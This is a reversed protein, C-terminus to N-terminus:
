MKLLVTMTRDVSFELMDSMDEQTFMERMESTLLNSAARGMLKLNKSLKELLDVILTKLQGQDGKFVQKTLQYYTAVSWLELKITMTFITLIKNPIKSGEFEKQLLDLNAQILRFYQHAPPCSCTKPNKAHDLLSSLFSAVKFSYNQFSLQKYSALYLDVEESKNPKAIGSLIKKRLSAKALNEDVRLDLETLAIPNTETFTFKADSTKNFINESEEEPYRTRFDKHDLPKLKKMSHNAFLADLKLASSPGVISIDQAMRQRPSAYRPAEGSVIKKLRLNNKISVFDVSKLPRKQSKLKDFSITKSISVKADEGEVTRSETVGQLKGIPILDPNPNEFVDNFNLRKGDFPEYALKRDEKNKKNSSEIQEKIKKTSEIFRKDDEFMEQLDDIKLQSKKRKLGSDDIVVKKLSDLLYGATRIIPPQKKTSDELNPNFRNVQTQSGTEYLNVEKHELNSRGLKTKSSSEIKSRKSASLSLSKPNAESNARDALTKVMVADIANSSDVAAGQDTNSRNSSNFSKNKTSKYADSDKGSKMNRTYFSSTYHAHELISFPNGPSKRDFIEKPATPTHSENATVAKRINSRSYTASTEKFVKSTDQTKKAPVAETAKKSKSPLLNSTATFKPTSKNPIAKMRAAETLISSRYKIAGSSGDVVLNSLNKKNEKDQDDLHVYSHYGAAGQGPKPAEKEEKGSQAHGLKTDELRYSQRKVQTNKLRQFDDM